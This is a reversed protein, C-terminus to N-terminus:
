RSVPASEPPAYSVRSIRMQTAEVAWLGDMDLLICTRTVCKQLVNRSEQIEIVLHKYRILPTKLM